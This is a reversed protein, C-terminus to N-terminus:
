DFKPKPDAPIPINSKSVVLKSKAFRNGRFIDVEEGTRARGSCNQVCEFRVIPYNNVIAKAFDEFSLLDADFFCSDLSLQWIKNSKDLEVTACHAKTTKHHFVYQGTYMGESRDFQEFRRFTRLPCTSLSDV